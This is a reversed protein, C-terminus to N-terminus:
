YVTTTSALAGNAASRIGMHISEDGAVVKLAATVDGPVTGGIMQLCECANARVIEPENGDTIIIALNRTFTDRDGFEETTLHGVWDLVEDIDRRLKGKIETLTM